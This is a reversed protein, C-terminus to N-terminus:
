SSPALADFQPRLAAYTDDLAEPVLKVGGILPMYNTDGNWRPVIHLHLHEAIGAGAVRGMNMGLNFGHPQMAATLVHTCRQGLAILESAVESPLDSFDATHEYPIVMLHGPNYPYLNMLIFTHAGRYLVLKRADDEARYANCLACGPEEAGGEGKIYTARWPTWKIEMDFRNRSAHVAGQQDTGHM